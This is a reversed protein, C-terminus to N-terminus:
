VRKSGTRLTLLWRLIVVWIIVTYHSMHYRVQVYQLQLRSLVQNMVMTFEEDDTFVLAFERLYVGSKKSQPMCIM